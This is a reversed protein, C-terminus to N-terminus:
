APLFCDEQKMSRVKVKLGLLNQFGTLDQSAIIENKYSNFVGFFAEKIQLM